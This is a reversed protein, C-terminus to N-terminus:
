RQHADTTPLPRRTKLIVVGPQCQVAVEDGSLVLDAGLQATADYVTADLLRVREGDLEAWLPAWPALARVLGFVRTAPQDFRVQLDADGPRGHRTAAESPQPEGHATGAVLDDIARVMLRAAIDSLKDLLEPGTIGLPIPTEERQLIAGSDEGADVLHVTVGGREEGNRLMWFLPSPGRYAPLLSPHANVTGLRPIALVPARLLQNFFAISIVDPSLKHLLEIAKDGSFSGVTFCPCGWVAAVHFPDTEDRDVQPLAHTLHNIARNAVGPVYTSRTLMNRRRSELGSLPKVVALVRHGRELVATLVRTSYVSDMGLFVVAATREHM